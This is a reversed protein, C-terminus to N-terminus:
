PYTARLQTYMARWCSAGRPCRTGMGRKASSRGRLESLRARARARARRWPVQREEVAIRTSKVITRRASFAFLGFRPDRASCLCWSDTRRRRSWGRERGVKTCGMKEGDGRLMRREISRRAYLPTRRARYPVVQLCIARLSQWPGASESPARRCWSPCLPHSVREPLNSRAFRKNRVRHRNLGHESVFYLRQQLYRRSCRAARAATFARSLRFSLSLSLSLTHTHTHAHTFPCLLSFAHRYNVRGSRIAIWSTRQVDAM